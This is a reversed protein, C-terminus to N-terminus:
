AVVEAGEIAHDAGGTALGGAVNVDSIKLNKATNKKKKDKKKKKKDVVVESLTKIAEMSEDTLPCKYLNLYQNLTMNDLEKEEELIGCNKAILDQAKKIISKGKSTKASPRPSKRQERQKSAGIQSHDDVNIKKTPTQLIFSSLPESSSQKFLQLLEHLEKGQEQIATDIQTPSTTVM